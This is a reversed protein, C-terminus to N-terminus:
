APRIWLISTMPIVYLKGGSLLGFAAPVATGSMDANGTLTENNVLKVTVPTVLNTTISIDM